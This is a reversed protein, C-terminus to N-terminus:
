PVQGPLAGTHECQDVVLVGNVIVTPIGEPYQDCGVRVGEAASLAPGRSSLDAVV